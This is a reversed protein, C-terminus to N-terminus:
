HLRSRSLPDTLKGACGGGEVRGGEVGGDVGGAGGHGGVGVGYVPKTCPGLAENIWRIM